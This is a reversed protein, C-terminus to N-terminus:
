RVSKPPRDARRAEYQTEIHRPGACKLSWTARRGDSNVCEFRVATRLVTGTIPDLKRARLILTGRRGDHHVYWGGIRPLALREVCGGAAREPCQCGNAREDFEPTYTASEDSAYPDPAVPEARQRKPIPM